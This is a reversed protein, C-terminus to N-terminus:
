QRNLLPSAPIPFISFPPREAPALPNLPVMHVAFKKGAVGFDVKAVVDHIDQRRLSGGTYVVQGKDVRSFERVDRLPAWMRPDGAQKYAKIFQIAQEDNEAIVVVIERSDYTQESM